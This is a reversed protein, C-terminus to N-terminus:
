RITLASEVAKPDINWDPAQVDVPVPMAQLSLVANPLAVCSYAPVIVEDGAGVGLSKLALRLASLGSGVGVAFQVGVLKALTAELRLVQPGGAWYGSRVVEAVAKVENEDFTLRNHPIM